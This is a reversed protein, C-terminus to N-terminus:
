AAQGDREEREYIERASEGYDPHEDIAGHTNERWSSCTFHETTFKGTKPGMSGGPSNPSCLCLAELGNGWSQAIMDSWFRCNKCEQKATVQKFPDIVGEGHRWEFNTFDGGDTIIVKVIKGSLADESNMCEMASTVAKLPGIFRHIPTNTGDAYFKWVSFEESIM